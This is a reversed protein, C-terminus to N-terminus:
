INSEKKNNFFIRGTVVDSIRSTFKVKFSYERKPEIM